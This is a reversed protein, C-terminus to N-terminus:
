DIVAGDHPRVSDVEIREDEVAVEFRGAGSVLALRASSRRAWLCPPRRVRGYLPAALTSPGRRLETLRAAMPCGRAPSALFAVLAASKTRGNGPRTSRPLIPSHGPASTTFGAPPGDQGDEAAVDDAGGLQVRRETVNGGVGQDGAVVLDDSLDQGAVATTANLTEPVPHQGHRNAEPRSGPPGRAGPHSPLSWPRPLRRRHRRAM